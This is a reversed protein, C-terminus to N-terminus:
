IYNKIIVFYAVVILPLFWFSVLLLFIVSYCGGVLLWNFSIASKTKRHFLAHVIISVILLPLALIPAFVMFMEPAMNPHTGLFNYQMIRVAACMVAGILIGVWILLLSVWSM